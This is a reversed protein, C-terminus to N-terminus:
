GGSMKKDRLGMKCANCSEPCFTRVRELKCDVATVETCNKLVLNHLLPGTSDMCCGNCSRPCHKRVSWQDCAHNYIDEKLDGCVRHSWSPIADDSDACTPESWYLVKNEEILPLENEVMVDYLKDQLMKGIETYTDNGYFNILEDPDLEMDYLWPQTKSQVLKYRETFAAAWKGKKSDTIYRIQDPDTPVTKNIWEHSGDIGHFTTLNTNKIGMMSLISPAFDINSYATKVINGEDIHGPYSIIFPVGASTKYPVGKNKKGHEDLLDGHDSTFVIITNDLIDLETLHTMLRGIRDDILKVMGFYQRFFRQRNPDNEMQNIKHKAEHLPVREPVNSWGPVASSQHLRFISILFLM